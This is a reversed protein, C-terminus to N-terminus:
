VAFPEGGEDGPTRGNPALARVLQDRADQPVRSAQGALGLCLAHLADEDMACLDRPDLSAVQQALDAYLKGAQVYDRTEQAKQQGKHACRIAESLLQMRAHQANAAAWVTLRTKAQEWDAAFRHALQTPPVGFCYREAYDDFVKGVDRGSVCQAALWEVPGDGEPAPVDAWVDLKIGPLPLQESM